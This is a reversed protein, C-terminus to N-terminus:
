EGKAAAAKGGTKTAKRREKARKQRTERRAMEKKKDESGKRRAREREVWPVQIKFRRLITAVTESPQAGVSLWYKLRETNLKVKTEWEKEFPDYHGLTELSKGDRQSRIDTADIRFFARNKRGLRKMRIRVAM